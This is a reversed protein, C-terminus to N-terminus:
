LLGATALDVATGSLVGSASVDRPDTVRRELV